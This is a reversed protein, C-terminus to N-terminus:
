RAPGTEPVLGGDGRAGGPATAADAAAGARPGWPAAEGASDPAARGEPSGYARDFWRREADERTLGSVVGRYRWGKRALSWMLLGRAEFGFVINLALSAIGTSAGLLLTAVAEVAVTLAVFALLVLWMGNFLLWLFPFLFGLWSFGERVFRTRVGVAAEGWREPPDWVTYLRM